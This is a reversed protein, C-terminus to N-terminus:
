RADRPAGGWLWDPSRPRIEVAVWLGALAVAGGAIVDLVYHNATAIVAIAMFAPLLLALVRLVRRQLAGALGIGLLLDWGFHLSPMAAYQNVLTPPQLFRYANSRQTVTDILGSEALRPPATPFAVFIVLGILGSILFANRTLFYSRPHRMALWLGGCAIVPWHGFIYVWNAFTVIWDHEILAEQVAWEWALGLAEEAEQVRRANEVALSVSGETLGRVLFYALVAAVTTVAERLLATRTFHYRFDM